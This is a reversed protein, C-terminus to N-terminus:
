NLPKKDLIARTLELATIEGEGSAVVDIYSEALCQGPFLTSHMGGWVVVVDGLLQKTQMSLAIADNITPGTLVSFGVIRPRYREIAQKFSEVEANRDFIRVEVGHKRLYAAIYTIGAPLYAPKNARNRPNVLLIDIPNM